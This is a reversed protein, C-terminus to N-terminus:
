FRVQLGAFVSRGFGAEFVASNAVARPLVSASSIYRTNGLNRADFFATVRGPILEAGGRIGFLTYPNSRLTNANDAYFGQPVVEINPAVWAGSAHRYRLEQRLM